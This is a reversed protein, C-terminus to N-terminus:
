LEEMADESYCGKLVEIVRGYRGERSTGGRRIAAVRGDRSEGSTGGAPVAVVRGDSSKRPTHGKPIKGRGRSTRNQFLTVSLRWSYHLYNASSAFSRDTGAFIEPVM